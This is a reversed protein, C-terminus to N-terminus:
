KVTIYDYINFEEDLSVIKRLKIPEKITINKWAESVKRYFGDADAKETKSHMKKSLFNISKTTLSTAPDNDLLDYGILEFDSNQYRFKYNNENFIAGSGHRFETKINLVGRTIAAEVTPIYDVLDRNYSFVNRNELKNEYYEGRNFVIVIGCRSEDKKGVILLVCDELSDKNLDGRVEQLIKYGAPVFDVPRKAKATPQASVAAANASL